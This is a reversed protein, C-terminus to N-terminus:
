DLPAMWPEREEEYRTHCFAKIEKEQLEYEQPHRAAKREYYGADMKEISKAKQKIQKLTPMLTNDNAQKRLVILAITDNTLGIEKLYHVALTRAEVIAQLKSDNIVYHLSVECVECVKDLLIDFMESKKM